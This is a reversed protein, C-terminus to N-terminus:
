SVDGFADNWKEFSNLGEKSLSKRVRESSRVFDQLQIHRIDQPRITALEVTSCERVPALAADRALNSIDSCTYGETLTVVKSIEKATLPAGQKELLHTVLKTRTEVDPMRVYVRKTFRRLAADDLEQPRNTAAVVVIREGSGTTMGEFQLLFETKIRRVGEHEGSRRESLLADIEDIFIITPQIHRAVSFLAKVLKEGEGLWKSTLSSSSINILNSSAEAALARALLTKGNGPPGFMLLGKAPERLGTFLEPRLTPLVVMEHLAAKAKDQGSVDAWTVGTSGRPIVENLIMEVLKSDVGKIAQCTRKLNERDAAKKVSAGSAPSISNISGSRSKGGGAGSGSSKLRLEAARNIRPKSVPSSVPSSAMKTSSSTDCRFKIRNNDKEKDEKTFTNSRVLPPGGARTHAQHAGRAGRSGARQGSDVSRAARLSLDNLHLTTTLFTLREQATALNTRMKDRLGHARALHPCGSDRPLPLSIGAILSQIGAQYHPIAERKAKLNDDGSTEDLSLAANLSKFALDQYQKQRAVSPHVPDLSAADKSNMAPSMLGVGSFYLKSLGSSSVLCANGMQLWTDERAETM